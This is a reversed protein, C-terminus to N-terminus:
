LYKAEMEDLKMTIEQVWEMDGTTQAELALNKLEDSERVLELNLRLLPLIMSLDLLSMRIVGNSDTNMLTIAALKRHAPHIFVAM